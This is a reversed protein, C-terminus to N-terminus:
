NSLYHYFVSTGTMALWQPTPATPPTLFTSSLTESHLGPEGPVMYSLSAECEHDQQRLKRLNTHPVRHPQNKKKKKKKDFYTQSITNLLDSFSQRINLQGPTNVQEYELDTTRIPSGPTVM